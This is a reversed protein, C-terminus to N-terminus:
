RLCNNIVGWFMNLFDDKGYEARYDSPDKKSGDPTLAYPIQYQESIEKSRILGPNKENEFDNDYWLIINRWRSKLKEFVRDPLFTAENNPAIGHIGANCFITGVDKLSSSIILLEGGKKPLLDWGQVITNDVNSIWKYEKNFPQYIKRRFIGENWYYNYCYGYKDANFRFQNVWFYVIPEINALILWDKTIGYQMNWYWKDDLSWNRSQKKIIRSKKIGKNGKYDQIIGIGTNIEPLEGSYPELTNLNFDRRILELTEIFSLGYKKSVYDFCNLLGPKAFDKYRYGKDFMTVRCSANTDDPRMALEANFSTDPYELPEIYHKFISWEDVCELINQKTLPKKVYYM